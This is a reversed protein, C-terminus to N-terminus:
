NKQLISLLLDLKGEIRDLQSEYESTQESPAHTQIEHICSPNNKYATIGAIIHPMAVPESLRAKTLAVTPTKGEQCLSAIAKLVANHM